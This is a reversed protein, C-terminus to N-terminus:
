HREAEAARDEALSAALHAVAFAPGVRSLDPGLMAAIELCRRDGPVSLLSSGHGSLIWTAGPSSLVEAAVLLRARIRGVVFAAMIAADERSVSRHDLGIMRALRNSAAAVTRPRGDCTDTDSEEPECMGLVVACDDTTAFVENMVPSHEGLYPLTDVVACVPTRGIGVYVLEGRGLREHDTRSPTAVRGQRLPILDSTTSGIDILLGENPELRAALTAMAHWNSAAVLSDDAIAEDASVFRGDVAYFQVDSGLVQCAAEVIRTVGEGRDLFCDALEGTMTVAYRTSGAHRELPAFRAVVSQLAEELQRPHKWLAFSQCHTRGARDAAKIHAGGIDLGVINGGVSNADVILPGTEPASGTEPGTAPTPAPPVAM